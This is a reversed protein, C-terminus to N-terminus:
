FGLATGDGRPDAGGMLTGNQLVIAQAHGCRWFFEPATKVRHGKAELAALVDGPVRSEVHTTEDPDGPLFAGLLFRPREIAEQVDMGYDFLNTLVQLHFMAQGNGGMTAFGLLPREDRTAICAMLTHFPRKCPAFAAPHSPDLTFHRGRNQLAVGTGPAVV